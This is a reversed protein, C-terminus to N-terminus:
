IRSRSESGNEAGVDRFKIDDDESPDRILLM